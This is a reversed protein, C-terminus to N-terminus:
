GREKQNKSTDMLSALKLKTHYYLTVMLCFPTILLHVEDRSEHIKEQRSLSLRTLM